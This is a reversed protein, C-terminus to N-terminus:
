EMGGEPFPIEGALERRAAELQEETPRCIGKKALLVVEPSLQIPEEDYQDWDNGAPQATDEGDLWATKRLWVVPAPTYQGGQKQWDRTAKARELAAMVAEAQPECRKKRWEGFTVRKDRRRYPPYSAWFKEFAQTYEPKQLQPKKRTADTKEEAGDTNETKVTGNKETETPKEDTAGANKEERTANETNEACGRTSSLVCSSKFGTGTGTESGTGTGTGPIAYGDPQTHCVTDSVTDSLTHCVTDSLTDLREHFRTHLYKRCILFEALLPTPHLSDLDALAGHFAKWNDPANYRWWTPIFLIEAREDWRWRLAEVVRLLAERFAEPTMGCLDAALGISLQYIGIRNTQPGALLFVAVFKEPMSLRRFAPDTWLKLYIKRYVM